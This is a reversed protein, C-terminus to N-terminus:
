GLTELYERMTPLNADRPSVLPTFDNAFPWEIGIEPDDHRVGGDSEKDYLTTCMYHVLAFSTNVFFGHALGPPLYVAEADEGGLSLSEWKGKTPSDPRLDVWCDWVMGALCRILKGQPKNKQLHMGRLIGKHSYSVNSQMWESPLGAEIFDVANFTEFFAGRDDHHVQNKIVLVGKIKTEFTQLKM